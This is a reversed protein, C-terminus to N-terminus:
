ILSSGGASGIPRPTLRLMSETLKAACVAPRVRKQHVCTGFLEWSEPVRPKSSRDRLIKLMTKVPQNRQKSEERSKDDAHRLPCRRQTKHHVVVAVALELCPPRRVRAALPRRWVLPRSGDWGCRDYPDQAPCLPSKQQALTMQDDSKSSDSVILTTRENARLLLILSLRVQFQQHLRTMNVPAQREVASLERINAM